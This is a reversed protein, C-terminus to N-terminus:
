QDGFGAVFYQSPDTLTSSSNWHLLQCTGGALNNLFSISGNVSARSVSCVGVWNASSFDTAITVALQGTGVDTISTVNFSAATSTGAGSCIIWFKAAGSVSGSSGAITIANSANTVSIGAGATITAAAPSGASSGVVIQGDTLALWTPVGTSNTSLAARNTTALGTVTNSSSAYLITSVAYTDAYSSTSWVPIAANASQFVRGNASPNALM